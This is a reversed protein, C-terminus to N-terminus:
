RFWGPLEVFFVGLLGAGFGCESSPEQYHVLAPGRFGFFLFSPPFPGKIPTLM